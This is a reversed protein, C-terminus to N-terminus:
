EDKVRVTFEVQKVRGANSTATLTIKYKQGDTGGSVWQKIVLGDIVLTPGLTLGSPAVVVDLPSPAPPDGTSVLTDGDSLFESFDIDYDLTEAPQKTFKGLIM